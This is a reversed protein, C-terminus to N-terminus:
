PIQQFSVGGSITQVATSDTPTIVFETVALPTSANSAADTVTITCNSYTGIGLNWSTTNNGVIASSLTGNGCTGGYTITGAEDSSFVYQPAQNSSSATVPTVEALIPDNTDADGGVDYAGIDFPATRNLPTPLTRDTDFPSALTKGKGIIHDIAYQNAAAISYDGAAYNTFIASTAETDVQSHTESANGTSALYANYDSDVLTSASVGVGICDYFLNNYALGKDVSPNSLPGVLLYKGSCDISAFTNHHVQLGPYADDRAGGMMGICSDGLDTSSGGLILNNYIKVGPNNEGLNTSVNEHLAMVFAESNIFTNDYISVNNVADLNLNQGHASPGSVNDDFYGHHISVNTSGYLNVNEKFGYAYVYGFESNTIRCTARTCYASFGVSRCTYPNGDVCSLNGAGVAAVHLIKIDTLITTTTYIQVNEFGSQYDSPNDADGYSPHILVKFGYTDPDSGSGVVGDITLYSVGIHWGYKRYANDFNDPQQFVAQGDGFANDWGTASGHAAATAKKITLVKIGDLAANTSSFRYGGYNGDAVWYTNDRVFTAPFDDLANSWTSGDGPTQGCVATDCIHINAANVATPLLLIAGILLFIITIIKRM